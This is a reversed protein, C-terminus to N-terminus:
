PAASATLDAVWTLHRRIAASFERPLELFAMHPADMVELRSVPLGDALSTM